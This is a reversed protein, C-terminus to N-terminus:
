GNGDVQIGQSDVKIQLGPAKQQEYVLYAALAVVLITLIGVVGYLTNRTM